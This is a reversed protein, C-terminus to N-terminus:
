WRIAQEQVAGDQAGCPAAATIQHLSVQQEIIEVSLHHGNWLRPEHRDRKGHPAEELACRNGLKRVLEDREAVQGGLLEHCRLQRLQLRQERQGQSAIM